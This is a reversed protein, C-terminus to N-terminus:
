SRGNNFFEFLSGRLTNTGSKTIVSIAVGAAMGEEADM